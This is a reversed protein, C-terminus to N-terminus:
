VNDRNLWHEIATKQWKKPRNLGKVPLPFRSKRDRMLEYLKTRKIGLMSMVQESDILQHEQVRDKPPEISQIPM